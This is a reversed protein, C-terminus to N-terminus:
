LIYIYSPHKEVLIFSIRGVYTKNLGEKDVFPSTYKLFM